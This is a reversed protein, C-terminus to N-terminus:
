AGGGAQEALALILDFRFNTVLSDLADALDRHGPRIENVLAALLEGDAQQAADRAAAVWEAPLDLLGRVSVLKQSDTPPPAPMGGLEEYLFRVGLHTELREFIEDARFPKRVFDDCGHSLITVRDEEFASATLAVIVTAQGRTTCKIRRTAEYGDMVPMRMDMWILHPQWEEWVRVGELGDCAERVEFGHPPSGLSSLLKVLLKRNAERDEVVLLRFPGGGAARQGPALGVVKRRPARAPAAVAEGPEVAVDFRFTSGRGPESRVTLSGGMLEVFHRSITLGLGTGEQHIYAPAQGAGRGPAAQVFPDFLAEIEGAAIGIGTDEVEVILRDGATTAEHRVRVTVGGEQTFKVANSLLNILVQRLKSEDCRVHQPVGPMREVLLQLGKDTARLRFMSEVDALLRYLDVNSTQLVTRGAEIKSVELVDNILTLLHEGSQRITQLDERQGASLAPDRALLQAFGLIANLPTRLEHSMNALFTSKARNAAEAAEKAARLEEEARKRATIDEQIGTVRLPHGLEDRAVVRGRHMGWRWEEAHPGRKGPYRMRFEVEYATTLGQMHADIADHVRSWDDPHVMAAWEKEEAHADYEWEGSRGPRAVVLEDSAVDLDWLALGAAEMAVKLRDESLRVAEVYADRQAEAEKRASIDQTIGALRVPRGAQDRAVVRGRMLIWSWHPEADPCCTQGPKVRTRVEVDLMPTEGAVHREIAAAVRARDDPHMAATLRAEVEDACAKEGPQFGLYGPGFKDLLTEGTVLDIDWLDLGAADIALKLREQSERLAEEAQKIGTVDSTIGAMGVIQGSADRLPVKNSLTWVTSGDPLARSELLGVLPEGTEIVRLDDALTRAGYEAGYVEVDTKGMIEAGTMELDHVLVPNVRTHRGALDKFYISEPVNDLLADTLSKEHRLAENARANQLAQAAAAAVSGALETEDMTFRRPALSDMGITGIAEGRVLLPVVLISAVGQQRMLGHAPAMRPDQQADLVAVPVKDRLVQQTVENEAVPIVLGLSTAQEESRFEAAVKLTAGEDDLLAAAVRPLDLAEALERCVVQLVAQPDQESTTTAIVRNLLDLEQNRRAHDENVALLAEEIRKRQTVDHLTIARGSIAGQRDRIPSVRVEFHRHGADTEFTIEGRVPKGDAAPPLHALSPLVGALPRGEGVEPGGGALSRAAPNLALVRDHVDVVIVGDDMSELVTDLAVPMLDFVRRRVLGWAGLAVLALFVIAALVLVISLASSWNM